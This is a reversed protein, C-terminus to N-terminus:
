TPWLIPCLVASHAITKFRLLYLNTLNGLETPLTGTLNNEGLDVYTVTNDEVKIGHWTGESGYAGFGDAELPAQKWGTKNVWGDGNTSNYLAILAARESNSIGVYAQYNTTQNIAINSYTTSEPIFNYGSKSPKVTGLWGDEVMGSYSGSVDTVPNEPLGNMVVGALGSGNATVNGAIAYTTFVIKFVADGVDFVAANAADSVKVLCQSSLTNPVTWM